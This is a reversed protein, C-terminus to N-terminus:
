PRPPPAAPDASRQRLRRRSRRNALIKSPPMPDGAFRILDLLVDGAALLADFDVGTDVDLGQFLYVLEETAINGVSDQILKNGGVGGVSSDFTRIGARFAVLANALGLGYRDHLHVGIHELGTHEALYAVTREIEKPVARGDTDSLAITECGKAILAACLDAVKGAPMGADSGMERFAYSLYAHLRYGDASAAAAVERAAALAQECTMNTNVQSYRESASVLVAVTDVHPAAALQRYYKLKPVLAALQQGRAPRLAALLERTDAMAPIVNPHVFSGVEIYPLRARQLAEALGLRMELPIVAKRNVAQMGDRLTVDCIKVEPM